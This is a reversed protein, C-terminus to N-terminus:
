NNGQDIIPAALALSEKCTIITPQHKPYDNSINKGGLKEHDHTIASKSKSKIKIDDDMGWVVEIEVSDQSWRAYM